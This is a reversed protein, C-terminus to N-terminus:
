YVTKCDYCYLKNNKVIWYNVTHKGNYSIITGNAYFQISREGRSKLDSIIEQPIM